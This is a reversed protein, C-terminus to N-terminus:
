GQDALGAPRRFFRRLSWVGLALLVISGIASIGAGAVVSRPRYELEIEHRGASPVVVSLFTGHTRRVEAEAGDITARWGPVNESAVLITGAASEVTARIRRLGLAVHDPAM